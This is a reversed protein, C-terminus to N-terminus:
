EWVYETTGYENIKEAYMKRRTYPGLCDPDGRICFAMPWPHNYNIIEADKEAKLETDTKEALRRM